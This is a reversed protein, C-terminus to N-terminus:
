CHLCITRIQYPEFTLHLEHEGSLDLDGVRDEILNTEEAGRLLRASRICAEARLGQTEYLRSSGRM